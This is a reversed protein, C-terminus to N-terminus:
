EDNRGSQGGPGASRACAISAGPRELTKEVARKWASVSDLPDGGRM